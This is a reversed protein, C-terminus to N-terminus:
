NGELKIMKHWGDRLMDQQINECIWQADEPQIFMKDPIKCLLIVALSPLSQDDDLIAIGKISLIQDAVDDPNDTGIATGCNKCVDCRSGDVEKAIEGRVRQYIAEKEPSRQATM